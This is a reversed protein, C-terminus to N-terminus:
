MNNKKIRDYILKKSIKLTRVATNVNTVDISHTENLFCRNEKVKEGNIVLEGCLCTYQEIENTHKHNRIGSGVPIFLFGKEYGDVLLNGEYSIKYVVGKALHSPLTTIEGKAIKEKIYDMGASNDNFEDILKNCLENLYESM